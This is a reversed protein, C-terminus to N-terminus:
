RMAGTTACPVPADGQFCGDGCARPVQQQIREVREANAKPQRTVHYRNPAELMALLGFYESDSLRDLPKGYFVSAAAPFGLVERGDAIGFYARNLFLRLQREKSIRRDFAWAAVMLRIKRHRLLGPDFTNFFLGKGISQTITTHGLRGDALGIGQHRYFTADQVALLACSRRTPLESPSFPLLGARDLESVMRPARIYSIAAIWVVWSLLAAVVMVATLGLRRRM